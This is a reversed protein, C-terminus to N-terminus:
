NASTKQFLSRTLTLRQDCARPRLNAKRLWKLSKPLPLNQRSTLFFSIRQRSNLRNLFLWHRRIEPWHNKWVLNQIIWFSLECFNWGLRAVSSLKEKKSTGVRWVWTLSDFPVHRRWTARRGCPRESRRYVESHVCGYREARPLHWAAKYHCSSERCDVSWYWFYYYASRDLISKGAAARCRAGRIETM